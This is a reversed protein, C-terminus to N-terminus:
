RETSPTWGPRVDLGPMPFHRTNQTYLTGRALMVTAALIADNRGTGHSPNWRRYLEAAFEVVEETVPATRLNRLLRDVRSEEGARTHFLVEARQIASTWLETDPAHLLREIFELAASRGRLHEILVDADIFVDTM